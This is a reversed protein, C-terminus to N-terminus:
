LDNERASNALHGSITVCVDSFDHDDRLSAARPHAFPITVDAIIRGPRPSLVIVRESLFVAERISHTVFLGTWKQAKWLRLMDENLRTRTFEDLAAFPEDLLLLSPRTVLARAISVRMRMGGSLERPYAQSFQSLGVWDLVEDVRNQLLGPETVSLRLPLAVNDTVSAWPMLTPDQFVFGVTHPQNQGDEFGTVTGASAPTLGAIIRLLSSKGCGSPGVLTVFSGQNIDLSIASLADTGSTFTKSVDQLRLAINKLDANM